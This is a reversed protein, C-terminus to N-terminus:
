FLSLIENKVRSELSFMQNVSTKKTFWIVGLSSPVPRQPNKPPKPPLGLAPILAPPALPPRTFGALAL